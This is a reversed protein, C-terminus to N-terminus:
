KCRWLTSGSPVPLLDLNYDEFGMDRLGMEELQTKGGLPQEFEGSLVVMHLNFTFVPAQLSPLLCVECEFM